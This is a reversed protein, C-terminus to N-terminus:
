RGPDPSAIAHLQFRATCNRGLTAIQYHILIPAFWRRIQIAV